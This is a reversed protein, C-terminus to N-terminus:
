VANDGRGIEHWETSICMLVLKDRTGTLTFDVRGNLFLNGTGHKVVVDRSSNATQLVMIQGTQGGSITDLDDTAAAAETDLILANGVATVAGGAITANARTLVVAADFTTVATVTTPTNTVFVNALLNTRSIKKLAVSSTDHVAFYDDNAVTVLETLTDLTVDAM